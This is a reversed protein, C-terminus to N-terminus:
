RIDKMRYAKRIRRAKRIFTLAMVSDRLPPWNRPWVRAPRPVGLEPAMQYLCCAKRSIQVVYLPCLRSCPRYSEGGLLAAEYRADLSHSIARAARYAPTKYARCPAPYADLHSYGKREASFDTRV